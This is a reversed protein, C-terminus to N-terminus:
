KEDALPCAGTFGADAAAKKLAPGKDAPMMSGLTGLFHRVEETKLHSLIYDAIVKARESKDKVKDAKSLKIANCTMEYDAKVAPASAKAQDALAATPLLALVLALRKMRRGYM